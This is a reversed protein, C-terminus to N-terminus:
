LRCLPKTPKTEDAWTATYSRNGTSGKEITLDSKSVELANVKSFTILLLFLGFLYKLKNM